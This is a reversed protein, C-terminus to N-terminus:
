GLMRGRLQAVIFAEVTTDTTVRHYGIEQARCFGEIRELFARFRDRYGRLAEGDATLDRVDGTESDILRLDGGLTPNM